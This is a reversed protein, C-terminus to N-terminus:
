APSSRAARRVQTMGAKVITAAPQGALETDGLMVSGARPKLLGSLTNLITTKGSGNGGLLAVIEGKPVSFTVDRLIETRGYWVNLGKVELM